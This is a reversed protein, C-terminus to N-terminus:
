QEVQEVDSVSHKASDLSNLYEKVALNQGLELSSLKSSIVNCPEGFDGSSIGTDKSPTFGFRLYLDRANPISCLEFDNLHLSKVVKM